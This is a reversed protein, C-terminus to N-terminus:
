APFIAATNELARLGEATEYRRVTSEDAQSERLVIAAIPGAASAAPASPHPGNSLAVLVNMEARLDVHRNAPTPDDHWAFGGAETTRVDAFFTVCPAIDRKTLGHKAAALLFNERTNRPHEAGAARAASARTSGGLLTDHRGSTDEVISVLARGMDSLLLRGACLRANWQIKVTDGANYRESTDDANWFFASVGPTGSTNVIRLTQGRALRGTWYWGAPITAQSLVAGPAIPRAAVPPASETTFATARELAVRKLELYRARHEAPSLSDIPPSESIVGWHTARVGVTGNAM